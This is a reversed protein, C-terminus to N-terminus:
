KKRLSWTIFLLNLIIFSILYMWLENNIKKDFLLEKNSPKQSNWPTSYYYSSINGIQVQIITLNPQIAEIHNRIFKNHERIPKGNKSNNVIVMDPYKQQLLYPFGDEINVSWPVAISDGILFIRYKNELYSITVDKDMSCGQSNAQHIWGKNKRRYNKPFFCSINNFLKENYPIKIMDIKDFYNKSLYKYVLQHTEKSLHGDAPSVKYDEYKKFVNKYLNLYEINEDIDKEIMKKIINSGRNHIDVNWGLPLYIVLIKSNTKEKISTIMDSFEKKYREYSIDFIIPDNYIRNTKDIHEKNILKNVTKLFNVPTKRNLNVGDYYHYTFIIILVGSFFLQIFLLKIYQKSHM